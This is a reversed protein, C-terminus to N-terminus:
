GLVEVDWLQVRSSTVLGRRSARFRPKGQRRPGTVAFIFATGERGILEITTEPDEFYQRAIWTVERILEAVEHDTAQGSTDSM